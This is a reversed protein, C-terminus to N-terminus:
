ISEVRWFIISSRTDIDAKEYFQIDTTNICVSRITYVQEPLVDLHQIAYKWNKDTTRYYELLTQEIGM